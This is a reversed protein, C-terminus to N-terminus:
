GQPEGPGDAAFQWLMIQNSATSFPPKLVRLMLGFRAADAELDAVRVTPRDIINM